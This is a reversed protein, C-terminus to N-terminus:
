EQQINFENSNITYLTNDIFAQYEFRYKLRTEVLDVAQYTLVISSGAEIVIMAAYCEKM